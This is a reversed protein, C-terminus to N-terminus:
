FCILSDNIFISESAFLISKVSNTQYLSPPFCFIGWFLLFGQLCGFSKFKFWLKNNLKLKLDWVPFSQFVKTGLQRSDLVWDPTQIINKVPIRWNLERGIYWSDWSTHPSKIQHHHHHAQCIIIIIILIFYLGNLCYNERQLDSTDDRCERGILWGRKHQFITWFM